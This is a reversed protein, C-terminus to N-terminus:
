GSFLALVSAYPSFDNVWHRCFYKELNCLHFILSVEFMNDLHHPRPFIGNRFYRFEARSENDGTSEVVTNKPLEEDEDEDQRDSSLELVDMGRYPSLGAKNVSYAMESISERALRRKKLPTVFDLSTFCFMKNQYYDHPIYSSREHM